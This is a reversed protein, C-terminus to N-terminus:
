RYGGATRAQAPEGAGEVEIQTEVVTESKLSRTILCIADAKHALREAKDRDKEDVITLRPRMVIRTISYRRDEGREMRGVATVELDVLELRSMDAIALLSTMYCSAASAVLLHEPSWVHAPGGFEPPTAVRVEPLGDPSRAMGEKGGTWGIHVPYDHREIM